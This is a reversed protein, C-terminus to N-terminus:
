KGPSCRTKPSCIKSRSFMPERSFQDGRLACLGLTASFVQQTSCAHHPTLRPWLARRFPFSAAIAVEELAAVQLASVEGSSWRVEGWASCGRRMRRSARLRRSSAEFVVRLSRRLSSARMSSLAFVNRVSSLWTLGALRLRRSSAGGGQLTARLRLAHHRTTLRQLTHAKRRLRSLHRAARSHREDDGVNSALLRHRREKGCTWASTSAASDFSTQRFDFGISPVRTHYTM